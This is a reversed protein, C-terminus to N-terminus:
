NRRYNGILEAKALIHDQMASEVDPKKASSTLDLVTDLAYLEFFYRHTGSPPCPGGYKSDGFDTQGQKGLASNEKIENTPDINFLIWHTWDGRPADPDHVILALSKTNDPIESIELPPNINEDDCTYKSPIPKNNEFAASTLKM